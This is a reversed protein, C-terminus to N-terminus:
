NKGRYRHRTRRGGQSVSPEELKAVVTDLIPQLMTKSTPIKSQVDKILTELEKLIDEVEASKKLQPIIKLLNEKRQYLLNKKESPLGAKLSKAVDSLERKYTNQSKQEKKLKRTEQIKRIKPIPNLRKLFPKATGTAGTAGTPGSSGVDTGTTGTPGSVPFKTYKDGFAVLVSQLSSTSSRVTMAEEEDQMKQKYDDTDLNLQQFAWRYKTILSSKFTMNTKKDLIGRLLTEQMNGLLVAQTPFLASYGVEQADEAEVPLVIHQMWQVYPPVAGDLVAKTAVANLGLIDDGTLEPLKKSVSADKVVIFGQQSAVDPKIGKYSIASVILIPETENNSTNADIKTKEVDM